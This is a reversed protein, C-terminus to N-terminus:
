SYMNMQNLPRISANALPVKIKCKDGRIRSTTYEYVKGNELYGIREVSFGLTGATCNLFQSEKENLQVVEYSEYGHHPTIGCEMDLINYLSESEMRERNLVSCLQYPIYTEEIILPIDDAFRVRVLRNLKFNKDNTKFIMSLELDADIQSLEIVKSSPHMGDKITQATFSYLTNINKKLKPNAVFTGLGRRRFILGEKELVGFAQRVTSRSIGYRKCIEPEPPLQAEAGLLKSHICKKIITILQIYYPTDDMKDIEYTYIPNNEM